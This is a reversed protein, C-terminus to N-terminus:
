GPMETRSVADVLDRRVEDAVQTLASEPLARLDAPSAIQDLLPTRLMDSM